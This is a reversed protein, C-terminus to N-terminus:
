TRSNVRAEIGHIRKNEKEQKKSSSSQKREQTDYNKQGSGRRIRTEKSYATRLNQTSIQAVSELM